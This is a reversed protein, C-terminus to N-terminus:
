NEEEGDEAPVEQSYVRAFLEPPLLDQLKLNAVARGIEKTACADVVVGESELEGVVLDYAKVQASKWQDWALRPWCPAASLWNEWFKGSVKGDSFDLVTKAILRACDQLAADEIRTQLSYCAYRLVEFDLEVVRSNIQFPDEQLLATEIERLQQSQENLSGWFRERRLHWDHFRQQLLEPKQNMNM